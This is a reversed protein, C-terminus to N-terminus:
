TRFGAKARVVQMEHDTEDKRLSRQARRTRQTFAKEKEWRLVVWDNRRGIRALDNSPNVAVPKGVAELMWRDSSSDGYAFCRRLDLDEEAAVRRIARAKAEGFMAEGATRGTWRGDSQELRTACVRVTCVLGRAGLEAEVERAAREALIELTGSVIVILHGREAHWAVREVAEPFLPVPVRAQRRRERKKGGNGQVKGEGEDEVGLRASIGMGGSEEDVRVGWLYMKNEHLIQNIGRPALRAAERLWLFYNKIGILRQYRLVAFYRKELSPTPMLTGDLDFFAAVDGRKEKAEEVELVEDVEKRM